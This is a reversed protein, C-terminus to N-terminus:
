QKGYNLNTPITILFFYYKLFKSSSYNMMVDIDTPVFETLLM